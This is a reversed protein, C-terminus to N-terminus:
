VKFFATRIAKLHIAKKQTKESLTPKIQLEQVECHQVYNESSNIQNWSKSVQSKVGSLSQGNDSSKSFLMWFLFQYKDHFFIAFTFNVSSSAIKM